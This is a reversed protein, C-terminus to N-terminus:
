GKSDTHSPGSKDAETSNSSEEHQKIAADVKAVAEPGRARAALSLGTAVQSAVADPELGTQEAIEKASKLAQGATDFLDAGIEEAGELLGYAAGWLVQEHDAKAGEALVDFVSVMTQHAAHGVEEKVEDSAHMAGRAVHRAVQYGHVGVHGMSEVLEKATDGVLSRISATARGGRAAAAAATRLTESVQYATVGLAVDLGPVRGLRTLPFSAVFGLGPVSSVARTTDQTHAMLAGLAEEKSVDGQEKLTSLLNLTGVGLIFAIVFLFDYGNLHVIGLDINRAPSTWSFNIQLDRVSFFDAFLGGLLPGIATGINTALSAATLYSTAQGQPALKMGITSIGLSVGAAAVGAMLHLAALIPLTASYGEPLTSLAWGLIVLAYLSAGMSLVTKSSFRDVLLGWMRLSLANAMQSLVSLQIVASVPYDLENLMYVAFFPTALNLAVGWCFLFKLLQRFNKDRLPVTLAERISLPKGEAPSMQPEPIRTMLFLSTMGMFAAGFLLVLTYAYVEDEAPNRDSWYDVFFAASLGFVAAALTAWALRRSFFLGLIQQPILDRMWSNWACNTASNVVGRLGILVILASVALDGPTDILVPILAIPFWMLQAAAWTPVAIIKRRRLKEIVLIYPLQLLQTLFPLSALIGVQFNNAGLALAFAALFGSTIISGFGISAVGEWTALRLARDRAEPSLSPAPQLFPLFAM